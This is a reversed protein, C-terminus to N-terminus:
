IVTVNASTLAVNPTLTVLLVEDGIAATPNYFLKGSSSEYVATASSTSDFTAVTALTSPNLNPFLRRDFELRDESGNFDLLLDNGFPNIQGTATLPAPAVDRWSFLDAGSGGILTDDGRDGSILDAGAEGILTDNGEGGFLSDSGTGGCLTDAGVNGDILDNGADGCIFDSGDDATEQALPDSNGGRLTDNGDGGAIADPGQDGYILDDGAEGYLLDLDKGGRLVDNGTGGFMLDSGLNGELVDNGEGGELLDYGNQDRIEINGTGAILTDDGQDGSIRDVGRDGYVLDNGQGGFLVDSDQGGRLTDNGRGGQIFDRGRGGELLDRDDPDSANGSGFLNDNGASGFLTDDGLRARIEVGALSADIAQQTVSIQENGFGGFQQRVTGVLQPEKLATRVSAGLTDLDDCPCLADFDIGPSLTIPASTASPTGTAISTTPTLFSNPTIAATPSPRDPATPTNISSPAIPRIVTVGPGTGTPPQTVAADDDQITVNAQSRSGLQDAPDITSLAIGFYEDGEVLRDGKITIRAIATADGAAFVVTVRTDDYDAGPTATDPTTSLLVSGAKSLDGTRSVPIELTVDGNTEQVIFSQPDAPDTGTGLSYVTPVPTNTPTGGTGGTTTPPQDDDLIRVLIRDAFVEQSSTVSGFLNVLFDEDGEVLTDGKITLSGTATASGAAFSVPIGGIPNGYDADPTASNTFTPQLTVTVAASLDGTRVVPINLTVDGNTEQVNFITPSVPDNGPGIQYPLLRGSSGIGIPQPQSTATDDDQITVITSDSVALRDIAGPDFLRIGFKEDGETLTDGKITLRGTATASGPEFSVSVSGGPPDIYDLSPDASGDFFTGLNVSVAQSVDGTRVIPIDIIRDENAERVLFGPSIPNNGRGFQFVPKEDDQITILTRNRTGIQDAPDIKTLVAGFVENGEALSDGKIELRGIATTAGPAFSVTVNSSDYDLGATATNPTFRLLVSGAKSTDGTRVVPIDFTVNTNGERVVFLRSDAPNNGPGLSYTSGTVTTLANPRPSQLANPIANTNTPNNVQQDDDLLNVRAIAVSSGAANVLSLSIAEDTEQVSDPAIPLQVTATVAGAAFVVPIEAGNFDAGAAANHNAPDNGPRLRLTLTEAVSTDGNRNITINHGATQYQTAPDTGENFDYILRTFSFTTALTATYDREAAPTLVRPCPISRDGTPDCLGQAAITGGAQWALDWRGGGVIAESGYITAGTLAQWRDVLARGAAGAAVRCAYLAIAAPETTGAFWGRVDDAAAELAVADVRDCGLQLAGPEGHAVIALARTAPQDNLIATIQALGSEAPHLVYATVGPQLGALLQQLDDVRSDFLAITSTSLAIAPSPLTSPM